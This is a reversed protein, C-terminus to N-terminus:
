RCHVGCFLFVHSYLIIINFLDQWFFNGENGGLFQYVHIRIQSWLFSFVLDDFFLRQIGKHLNTLSQWRLVDHRVHVPSRHSPVSRLYGEYVIRNKVNSQFKWGHTDTNVFFCEVTLQCFGSAIVASFKKWFCNQIFSSGYVIPPPIPWDRIQINKRRLAWIPSTWTDRHGSDM